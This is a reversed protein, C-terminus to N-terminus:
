KKFSKAVEPLYTTYPLFTFSLDKIAKDNNYSFMSFSAKAIAQTFSRKKRFIITVLWDLFVGIKASFPSIQIHPKNKGLLAAVYTLLDINQLTDSVLIYKENKISSKMLQHMAKVVDEVAVIGTKGNTYFPFNSAIKQFLVSSGEQEFYKGFIVGPNVIVVSLGEQTARWIEMEAGHKSLAYDSHYIEPNWNTQETVPISSNLPEGLAAISSVHCLKEIAFDICLNVINTTGEINTKRMIKEDKPDFSVLAACHYVQKINVFAEELAPVDLIDAQFWQIYEFLHLCKNKEFVRKTKAISKESRYLARIEQKEHQLLHLILHSGVLGTAGTVLIM